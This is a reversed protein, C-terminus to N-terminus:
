PKTVALHTPRPAPSCLATVRVATRQLMSLIKLKVAKHLGFFGYYPTHVRYGGLDVGPRPGTVTYKVWESANVLLLTTLYSFSKRLFSYKLRSVACYESAGWYRGSGASRVRGNSAAATRSPLM